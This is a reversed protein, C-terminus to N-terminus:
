RRWADVPGVHGVWAAPKGMWRAMGAEIAAADSGQLDEAEKVGVGSTLRYRRDVERAFTDTYFGPAVDSYRDQELPGLFVYGDFTRGLMGEFGRLDIAMDFPEAGFPSRALAFAVPTNGARAFAEDFLGRRVRGDLQGGRNGMVPGHQVVTFLRDGLVARLRQGASPYPARDGARVLASPLHLYGVQFLAHRPDPRTKLDALIADAMLADRDSELTPLDQATKVRSWDWSQDVLVVRLRKSPALGRNVRWVAALFDVEDKCPWGEQFVSRLIERVPEVDLAPSALFRAMLPQAHRPLEMYITGTREAFAPDAVLAQLLAWSAVRNHIEGFAVLDHTALTELLFAKPDRGSSALFGTFRALHAEPNAVRAPAAAVAVPAMKALSSRAKRRAQEISAFRDNGLAGWRGAERQMFWLDVGEKSGSGITGIVAAFDGVELVDEIRAGRIESREPEPRPQLVSTHIRGHVKPHFLPRVDPTGEAFARLLAAYTGEPTSRDAVTPMTALPAAVTRFPPLTPSKRPIAFWALLASSVCLLVLLKRMHGGGAM